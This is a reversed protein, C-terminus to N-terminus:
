ALLLKRPTKKDRLLDTQPINVEPLLTICAIRADNRARTRHVRGLGPNFVANTRFSTNPFFSRLCPAPKTATKLPPRVVCLGWRACAVAAAAAANTKKTWQRRKDEGQKCGVHAGREKRRGIQNMGAPAPRWATRDQGWRAPLLAVTEVFSGPEYRRVHRDGEHELLRQLGDVRGDREGVPIERDFAGVVVPAVEPVARQERVVPVTGGHGFVHPLPPPLFLSLSPSHLILVPFSFLSPPSVSSPVFKASMPQGHQLQVPWVMRLLNFQLVGSKDLGPPHPNDRGTCLHRATLYEAHLYTCGVPCREVWPSVLAPRARLNCGRPPHNRYESTNGMEESIGSCCAVDTYSAPLIHVNEGDAATGGHDYGLTEREASTVSGLAKRIQRFLLRSLKSLKQLWSLSYRARLIASFTTNTPRLDTSSSTWTRSGRGRCASRQKQSRQVSLHHKLVFAARSLLHPHGDSSPEPVDGDHHVGRLVRADVVRVADEPRGPVVARRREHSPAVVYHAQHIMPAWRTTPLIAIDLYQFGPSNQGFFIFTARTKPPSTRNAESIGRTCDIPPIGPTWLETRASVELTYLFHALPTRNSINQLM